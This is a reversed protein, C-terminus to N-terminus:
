LTRLREDAAIAPLIVKNVLVWIKKKEAPTPDKRQNFMKVLFAYDNHGNNNNFKNPKFAGRAELDELMARSFCESTFEIKRGSAVANILNMYQRIVSVDQTLDPREFQNICSSGIPFLTLGTTSNTITYLYVLGTKGCVCVGRGAPDEEANSLRWETVATPWDEASSAALVAARLAGFDHEPM